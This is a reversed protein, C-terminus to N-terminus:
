NVYVFENGSMLAQCFDALAAADPLKAHSAGYSSAQHEIFAQAAELEGSSPPRGYAARYAAAISDGASTQQIKRAFAEAYQRAQPSNMFLLAQPAVTTVPRSGISSLPEPWDLVMMMPILQSRKVFFYISRRRSNQDLTGPGFPTEDLQGSVYLMADRIPEAELRRPQWRWLLVDHPDAQLRAADTESSQMYVASSMMLRHLRKLNWRHTVLDNALWDLLEPNSPREGQAGFDNPTAVLGTGFHHQWLRNVIVRAVLNGGGQDVDTLWRALAARRHSTRAGVPAATQWYGPEKGRMLVLPFSLTAPEIKSNPDGRRLVYVTKYFHPFGRDDALSKVPKLGESTIQVKAMDRRPGESQLRALSSRLPAIGLLNETFDRKAHEYAAKDISRGGHALLAPWRGNTLWPAEWAATFYNGFDVRAAAAMKEDLRQQAAALQKRWALLRAPRETPPTVDFDVDSRIATAFAATLHYYDASAIPDYKHDHCRACGITLGLMANGVTSVMDDLQNYRTSEFEKETIQTPFVGATLFGTAANAQWDDPALEDGAIQWQVFQDFPMDANLARIVFDRYQYAAPRDFDQEFGDSEGFRAVDLWHRGWREGYHPSALLRDLLKQYADPSADNLFADTEAPTPPLGILDFSVRRILTRRDAISNPHLGREALKAIIFQDIPTKAWAAQAASVGPAPPSIARLPQFAWFRRGAAIDIGRSAAPRAGDQANALAVACSAAVFCLLIAHSPRMM